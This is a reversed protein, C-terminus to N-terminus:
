GSHLLLGDPTISHPDDEKTNEITEKSLKIIDEDKSQAHQVDSIITVTIDDTTTARIKTADDSDHSLQGPRFFQQINHTLASAKAGEKPYVDSRRTLSDPKAGLRGPRYRIVFDFNSLYESWRAQRRTSLQKTTTFYKLDKHDTFITITHQAGELYARWSRFCDHIALLEKDHIDYNIEPPSL